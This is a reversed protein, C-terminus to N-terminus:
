RGARKFPCAPVNCPWMSHRTSAGSSGSLPVIRMLLLRNATGAAMANVARALSSGTELFQMQSSCTLLSDRVSCSVLANMIASGSFIVMRGSLGLWTCGCCSSLGCPRAWAMAVSAARVGPLRAPLWAGAGSRKASGGVALLSYPKKEWLLTLGGGAAAAAAPGSTAPQCAFKQSLSRPAGSPM